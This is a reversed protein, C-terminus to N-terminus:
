YKKEIYSKLNYMTNYPPDAISSNLVSIPVSGGPDSVIQHTVQIFGGGIDLLHWYGKMKPIRVTGSQEPYMQPAAQMDIRIEKNSPYSFKWHMVNDRDSAPWPVDVASYTYLEDRSILKVDKTDYGNHLWECRNPADRLVTEVQALSAQVQMIAKIEKTAWGEVFRTYVRIGCRDKELVWDSDPSSAFGFAFVCFLAISKM